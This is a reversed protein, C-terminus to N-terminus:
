TLEQLFQRPSECSGSAKPEDHLRNEGDQQSYASAQGIRPRSVWGVQETQEEIGFTASFQQSASYGGDAGQKGHPDDKVDHKLQDEVSRHM